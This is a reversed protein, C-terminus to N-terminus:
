VNLEVAAENLDIERTESAQISSIFKKTLEGLSNDLRTRPGQRPGHMKYQSQPRKLPGNPYLPTFRPEDYHQSAHRFSRMGGHFQYSFTDEPREHGM